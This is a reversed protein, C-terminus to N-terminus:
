QSLVDEICNCCYIWLSNHPETLVSVPLEEYTTYIKYRLKYIDCQMKVVNQPNWKFSIGNKHFFLRVAELATRHNGDSFCQMIILNKMYYTTTDLMTTYKPVGRTLIHLKDTRTNFVAVHEIKPNYHSMDHITNNIHIIESVTLYNM